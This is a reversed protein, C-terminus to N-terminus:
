KGTLCHDVIKSVWIAHEIEVLEYTLDFSDMNGLIAQLKIMALEKLIENRVAELEKTSM